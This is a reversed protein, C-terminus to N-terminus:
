SPPATQWCTLLQETHPAHLWCCNTHSGEAKAQGRASQIALRLNGGSRGRHWLTVLVVQAVVRQVTSLMPAPLDSYGGSRNLAM